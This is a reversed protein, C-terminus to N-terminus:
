RSKLESYSATTGDAESRTFLDSAHSESEIGPEGTDTKWSSGSESESESTFGVNNSNSSKLGLSSLTKWVSSKPSRSTGSRPPSMVSQERAAFWNNSPTMSIVGGISVFILMFLGIVTVIGAATGLSFANGVCGFFCTGWVTVVFM